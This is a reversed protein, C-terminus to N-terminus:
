WWMVNSTFTLHSGPGWHAHHIVTLTLWKVQMKTCGMLHKSKSQTAKYPLKNCRCITIPSDLAKLNGSTFERILCYQGKLEVLWKRLLGKENDPSLGQHLCISPGGAFGSLWTGDAQLLSSDALTFVFVRWWLIIDALWRPQALESCKVFYVFM